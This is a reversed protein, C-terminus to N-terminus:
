KFLYINIKYKNDLIFIKLLLYKLIKILKFNNQRSYPALIPNTLSKTNFGLLFFKSFGFFFYKPAM